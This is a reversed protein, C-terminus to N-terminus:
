PHKLQRLIEAIFGELYPDEPAHPYAQWYRAVAEAPATFGTHTWLRALDPRDVLRGSYMKMLFIWDASPALVRLAPGDVVTTCHEATLGRPRFTAANDNLWRASVGHRDAVEAVAQRTAETLRTVVDVDMTSDRLHALALYSGGVVILDQRPLGRAQLAEDLSALASLLRARDFAPAATV